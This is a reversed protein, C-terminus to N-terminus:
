SLDGECPFKSFMTLSKKAIRPLVNFGREGCLPFILFQFKIAYCSVDQHRNAPFGLGLNIYAKFRTSCKKTCKGGFSIHRYMFFILKKYAVVFGFPEM